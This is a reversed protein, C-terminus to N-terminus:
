LRIKGRRESPASDRARSQGIDIRARSTFRRALPEAISQVLRFKPNVPIQPCNGSRYFSGPYRSQLQYQTRKGPPTSIPLHIEGFRNREIQGPPQPINIQSSRIERHRRFYCLIM